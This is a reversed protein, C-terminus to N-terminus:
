GFMSNLTGLMVQIHEGTEYDLTSGHISHPISYVVFIVLMAFVVEWRGAKNDSDSKWTRWMAIAWVLAGIALKNDTWDSGFPWGTWYADFAYKQVVPGLMMGGLMLFGFAFRSFTKLHHSGTLADFGAANSFLMGMIMCIVHVILIVDPVTGKFRAVASEEHPITITQEGKSFEVSYEVKGAMGQRPLYSVLQGKELVLPTHTWDDKTPFRRWVMVASVTEDPVTIVVKMDENIDGSRPLKGKISEGDLEINFRVPYTPGTMKQYIMTAGSIVVTFVWLLILRKM